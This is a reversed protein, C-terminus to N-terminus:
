LAYLSVPLLRAHPPEHDCPRHASRRTHTREGGGPDEHEQRPCRFIRRVLTVGGTSAVRGGSVCSATVPSVALVCSKLWVIFCRAGITKANTSPKANRSRSTVKREITIGILAIM